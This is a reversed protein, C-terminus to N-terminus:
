GDHSFRDGVWQDAVIVVKRPRGVPRRLKETVILPTRSLTVETNSTRPQQATGGRTKGNRRRPPQVDLRTLGDAARCEPCLWDGTQARERIDLGMMHEQGIM